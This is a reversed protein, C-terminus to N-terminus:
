LSDSQQQRSEHSNFHSQFTNIPTILNCLFSTESLDSVFTEGLWSLTWWHEPEFGLQARCRFTGSVRRSWDLSRSSIGWPTLSNEQGLPTILIRKHVSLCLRVALLRLFSGTFTKGLHQLPFGEGDSICTLNVSLQFWVHNHYVWDPSLFCYLFWTLFLQIVITRTKLSVPCADSLLHFSIHVSSWFCVTQCWFLLCSFSCCTM